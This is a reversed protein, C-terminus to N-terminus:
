RGTGPWVLVCGMLPVCLVVVVSCGRLFLETTHFWGGRCSPPYVVFLSLLGVRGVVAGLSGVLLGSFFELYVEALVWMSM